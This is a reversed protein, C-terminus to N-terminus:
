DNDGDQYVYLGRGAREFMGRDIGYNIVNISQGKGLPTWQEVQSRTFTEGPTLQRAITSCHGELAPNIGVTRDIAVAARISTRKNTTQKRTTSDVSGALSALGMTLLTPGVGILLVTFWLWVRVIGAYESIIGTDTALIIAESINFAGDLTVSGIMAATAVKRANASKSYHARWWSTGAVAFALAVAMLVSLPTITSGFISVAFLADFNAVFLATRGGMVILLAVYAATVFWAKRQM